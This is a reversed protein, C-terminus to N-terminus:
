NKIYLVIGPQSVAASNEPYYSNQAHIPGLVMTVAVQPPYTFGALQPVNKALDAATPIKVTIQYTMGPLGGASAFASSVGDAYFGDVFITIPKPTVVYGGEFNLAGIGTAFITIADGPKAPRNPSNFSGDSNRIYGQGYGSGNISYIGPSSVAAPMLVPNSTAGGSSVEVKAAGSTKFSDPLISAISEASRAVVPLPTGDILIQADAGFGSGRAEIAEGPSLPVAYKSAFNVISDFTVYPAPTFAIRNALIAGGPQFQTPNLPQFLVSTCGALFIDGNPASEVGAVGFARTDGAYTSFLLDSLSNNLVAVFGTAPISGDNGWFNAADVFSGQFPLRTPFAKSTTYGGVIVGGTSDIAVSQGADLGEGGLLTAAIVRSLGGDLKAVYAESWASYGFYGSVQVGGPQVATQFAGPTTQFPQDTFGTNGTLFINGETDLAMANVPALSALSHLLASGSGNMLNITNSSADSFYANGLPDVVLANIFGAQMGFYTSYVLTSGDARFKTLFGSPSPGPCIVISGPSCNSVVQFQTQYAGHTTPLNGYSFGALYPSGDPGVAISAASTNVDGFYTAWALSGDTNLRLLFSGAPMFNVIPDQVPPATQYAGKTVPFDTSNTTGGVYVSGDSGVAVGVASDTGSGGVRLSYLTQGNPDVKVVFASTAGSAKGLTKTAPFDPSSTTGSIYFNGQADVATGVVQNVGSGNIQKVWQIAAAPNSIPAAALSAALLFSSLRGSFIASCRWSLAARLYAANNKTLPYCMWGTRVPNTAPATGISCKNLKM